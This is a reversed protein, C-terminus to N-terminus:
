LWACEAPREDILFQCPRGVVMLLVFAGPVTSGVLALQGIRLDQM